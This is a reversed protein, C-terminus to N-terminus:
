ELDKVATRLAEVANYLSEGEKLELLVRLDNISPESKRHANCVISLVDGIKEIHFEEQIAQVIFEPDLPSRPPMAKPPPNHMFHDLASVCKECIEVRDFATNINLSDNLKIRQVVRWAPLRQEISPDYPKTEKCRDCMILRM